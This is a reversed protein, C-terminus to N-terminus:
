RDDRGVVDTAARVIRLAITSFISIDWSSRQNTTPFLSANCALETNILYPPTILPRFNRCVETSLVKYISLFKLVHFTVM